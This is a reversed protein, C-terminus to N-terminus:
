RANAIAPSACVFTEISKWIADWGGDAEFAVRAARDGKEDLHQRIQRQVHNLEARIQNHTDQAAAAAHQALIRAQQEAQLAPSPPSSTAISINDRSWADREPDQGPDMWANKQPSEHMSGNPLRLSSLPRSGLSRQREINVTPAVGDSRNGGKAAVGLTGNATSTGNVTSGVGRRM